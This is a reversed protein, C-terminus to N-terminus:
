GIGPTSFSIVKWPSFPFRARLGHVNRGRPCLPLYMESKNGCRAARASSRHKTWESVEFVLVCPGPSINMLVPNVSSPKGLM